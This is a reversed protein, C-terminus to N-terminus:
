RGRKRTVGSDTRCYGGTRAAEPIEFRQRTRITTATIEMSADSTVYHFALGYIRSGDLLLEEGEGRIVEKLNYNGDYHKLEVGGEYVLYDGPDAEVQFGLVRTLGSFGVCIDFGYFKGQEPANGIRIRIHFPETIYPINEPDPSSTDVSLCSRHLVGGETERNCFEYGTTGTESTSQNDNYNLSQRAVSLESLIWKSDKKELHWDTHEERMRQLITEPLTVSRYFESWMRILDLYYDLNGNDRNGIAFCMGARFAVMRSLMFEMAEPSTAEYRGNQGWITYWGLMGPMLNRRFYHQNRARYCYMGGRRNDEYWPEGWNFYTHAHWRYHSPKSADSILEPGTVEYVRRVFESAAYEGRGTYFCGEVGDFSIRGIGSDRIITGIREAMEGQLRISPFLTKYDHEWLRFVETGSEYQEAATGYMGRQCGALCMSERDFTEYHILEDGLRVLQIPSVIEFHNVDAVPLVTDERGVGATLVTQDMVQLEPHPLPTVYSDNTHIFNTLTHFGVRIGRDRASSIFETFEERGGPFMQRNIEFHGWSQFPNGYYICHIGAREAMAFQEERGLEGRIVLYIEAAKPSTKAWEGDITPHPLNEELELECIDELLERANEAATLVVAAGKIKGDDGQVTDNFIYRVTGNKGVFDNIVPKEMNYATCQLLVADGATSMGAANHCPMPYGTRNQATMSQYQIESLQAETVVQKGFGGVTKPNLSQICVAAGDPFWAAGLDEGFDCAGPCQCPGFVFGEAKDPIEEVTLKVSGNRRAAVSLVVDCVEYRLTLRQGSLEAREPAYLTHNVLLLGVPSPSVLQRGDLSVTFTGKESFSIQVM